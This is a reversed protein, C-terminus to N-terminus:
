NVRQTLRRKYAQYGPISVLLLIIVLIILPLIVPQNWEKRKQARLIRDINQFKLTAQSIGHPKYNKVWANNLVFTQPHFSSAWPMDHRYIDIMKQIIALREASNEMTKMQNFLKDYEPNSYNSSNVGSGGSGVRGNPGYLLFLFNEPDPYDAFWGWFFIQANGKEMKDQFRNYDTARINLEIDIKKFQKILWKQRATDGGGGSTTDLNLVLPKGTNIDRGNPYGAEALLKKAMEIPKRQAKGNVWDFVYPNIGEKGAQYGFVGPPLPSMAEEGRGNRFISIQEKEDYAIAIAHRLKQNKESFGGVQDDLMNFGLYYTAPEITMSLSIGKDQMEDSLGIGEVGVNVAQDFSDSSIGSRDYYGQLFKTWVPISEKELRFIIKDIIPLQKGADEILGKEVDSPEGQSPYFDDHYNPNRALVIEENPNHKTMMYAGTGVPHFDLSINKDALGPLHYFRDVEMPIPAFFHFALWYKFQPYKGHLKVTFSYQNLKKVGALEFQDLNIWQGPNQERFQIIEERLEKMGVVYHSVLDWIPMQLTPDAMRKYQYIYDDAVLVKSGTESFDDFTKFDASEEVSDFHYFPKGAENIAFAPHPQYRIDPKIEFFYTSFAPAKRESDLENGQQDWYRVQPMQTLTLTKLTYPRKLYHYELPPEYIQDIFTAEDLNYTRVPDLHKPRSSFVSYMILQDTNESSHPNNWTQQDCGSLSCLLALLAVCLVNRAVNKVIKKVINRGLGRKKTM